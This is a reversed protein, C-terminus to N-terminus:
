AISQLPLPRESTIRLPTLKWSAFAGLSANSETPRSSIRPAPLLFIYTTSLVLQSRGEGAEAPPHPVRETDFVSYFPTHHIIRAVVM